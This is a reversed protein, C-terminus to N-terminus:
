FPVGDGAERGGAQPPLGHFKETKLTVHPQRECCIEM